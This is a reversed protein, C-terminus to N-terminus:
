KAIALLMQKSELCYISLFHKSFNHSHLLFLLIINYRNILAIFWTPFIVRFLFRVNFINSDTACMVMQLYKVFSLVSSKYVLDLVRYKEWFLKVNWMLPKLKTTYNQRRGVNNYKKSAHLSIRTPFSLCKGLIYKFFGVGIYVCKLPCNLVKNISSVMYFYSLWHCM